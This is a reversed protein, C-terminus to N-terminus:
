VNGRRGDVAVNARALNSGGDFDSPLNQDFGRFDFPHDAGISLGCGGCMGRLLVVALTSRAASPAMLSSRAEM